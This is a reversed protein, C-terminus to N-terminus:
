LFFRQSNGLRYVGLHTIGKQNRMIKKKKFSDQFFYHVNAGTEYTKRVVLRFVTDVATSPPFSLFLHTYSLELGRM